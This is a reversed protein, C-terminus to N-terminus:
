SAIYEVYEMHEPVDSSCALGYQTLWDLRRLEDAINGTITTDIRKLMNEFFILMSEAWTGFYEITQCFEFNSRRLSSNDKTGEKLIKNLLKIWYQKDNVINSIATYLNQMDWVNGVPVKIEIDDFYPSCFAFDMSADVFKIYGKVTDFIIIIGAEQGYSYVNRVSELKKLYENYREVKSVGNVNVMKSDEMVNSNSNCMGSNINFTCM